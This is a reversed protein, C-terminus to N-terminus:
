ENPGVWTGLRSKNSILQMDDRLCKNWWKEPTKNGTWIWYLYVTIRAYYCSNSSKDCTINLSMNLVSLINTM